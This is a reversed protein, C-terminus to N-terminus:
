LIYAFKTDIEVGYVGRIDYSKFAKKYHQLM